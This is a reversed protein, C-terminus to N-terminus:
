IFEKRIAKMVESHETTRGEEIDKRSKELEQKIQEYYYEKPYLLNTLMEIEKATFSKERLKRYMTPKSIDLKKVFYDLKFDSQEILEPITEIYSNYKKVTEIM